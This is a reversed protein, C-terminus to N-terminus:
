ALSWLLCATAFVVFGLVFFCASRLPRVSAPLIRLRERDVLFSLRNAAPIRECAPRFFARFFDFFFHSAAARERRSAEDLQVPGFFGPLLYTKHVIGGGSRSQ